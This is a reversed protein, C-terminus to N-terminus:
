TRDVFDVLVKIIFDLRIQVETLVTLLIKKTLFIKGKKTRDVFDVLVKYKKFTINEVFYLM